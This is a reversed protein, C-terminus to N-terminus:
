IVMGRYYKAQLISSNEFWIGTSGNYIHIDENFSETDDGTSILLALDARLKKAESSRVTLSGSMSKGCFNELNSLVIADRFMASQSSSRYVSLCIDKIIRPSAHLPSLLICIKFAQKVLVSTNDDGKYVKFFICHQYYTWIHHLQLCSNYIWFVWSHPHFIKSASCHYQHKRLVKEVIHSIKFVWWQM